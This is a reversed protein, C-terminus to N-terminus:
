KKKEKLYTCPFRCVLDILEKFNEIFSLSNPDIEGDNFAKYLEMCMVTKLNIIATDCYEEPDAYFMLTDVNNRVNVVFRYEKEKSFCDDKHFGEFVENSDQYTGKKYPKVKKHEVRWCM